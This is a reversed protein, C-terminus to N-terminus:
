SARQYFLVSPQWHGSVCQACVDAWSGVARVNADDFYHWQGLEPRWVFASYHEGYYAMICSLRLTTDNKGGEVSDFVDAVVVEPQTGQPGGASGGMDAAGAELASLLAQM